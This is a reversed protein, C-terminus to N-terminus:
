REPSMGSLHMAAAALQGPDDFLSAGRELHRADVRRGAGLAAFVIRVFADNERQAVAAAILRDLTEDDPPLEAM